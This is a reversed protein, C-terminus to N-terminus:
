ALAVPFDQCGNPARLIISYSGFRIAEALIPFSIKFGELDLQFGVNRAERFLYSFNVEEASQPLLVVLVYHSCNWHM